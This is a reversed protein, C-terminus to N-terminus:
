VEVEAARDLARTLAAAVDAQGAQDAADRMRRGLLIKYSDKLDLGALDELSSGAGFAAPRPVGNIWFCAQTTLCKFCTGCNRDHKGGAHCVRLDAAIPAEHAFATVKDLKDFAAGDHWLPRTGSGLLHDTMPTSGWPLIPHDYPYSSPIMTQAFFQEYCALAAAISIGHSSVGWLYGMSRGVQKLNTRLRYPQVGYATLMRETRAYAGPFDRDDREQIDFGHVMLGARLDTTRFHKEPTAAAHRVLTFCSDVGGSFATIAGSGRKPGRPRREIDARIPVVSVDAPHWAVQAEQWEMLNDITGQDVPGDIVLPQGWRMAAQLFVLLWPRGTPRFRHPDPSTFEMGVTFEQQGRITGEWRVVGEDVTPRRYTVVSERPHTSSPSM